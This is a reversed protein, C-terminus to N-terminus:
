ESVLQSLLVISDDPLDFSLTFGGQSATWRGAVSSPPLEVTFNGRADTEVLIPERSWVEGRWIGGTTPSFTVAVRGQPSRWKGRLMTM